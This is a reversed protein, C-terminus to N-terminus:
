KEYRLMGTGNIKDADKRADVIRWGLERSVREAAVGERSTANVNVYRRAEMASRVYRKAKSTNNM